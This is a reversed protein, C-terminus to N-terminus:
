PKPYDAGAPVLWFILMDDKRDSVVIKARGDLGNAKLALRSNLLSIKSKASGSKGASVSIFLSAAPNQTIQLRASEFVSKPFKSVDGISENLKMAEPGADFHMTESDDSPCGEPLGIVKVSVTISEETFPVQIQTTGQGRVMGVSGNRSSVSWLYSLGVAKEPPKVTVQYPMSDGHVPIGAPGDVQITPCELSQGMLIQAFSFFAFLKLAIRQM